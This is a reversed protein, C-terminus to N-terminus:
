VCWIETWCYQLFEYEIGRDDYCVDYLSLEVEIEECPGGSGGSSGSGSGSCPDSGSPSYIFTCSEEVRSLLAFDGQPNSWDEEATYVTDGSPM